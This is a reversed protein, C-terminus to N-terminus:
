NEVDGRESSAATTERVLHILGDEARFKEIETEIMQVVREVDDPSRRKTINIAHKEIQRCLWEDKSCTDALWPEYKTPLSTKNLTRYAIATEALSRKGDILEETVRWRHHSLEDITLQRVELAKSQEGTQLFARFNGAVDSLGLVILFAIGGLLGAVVGLSALVRFTSAM